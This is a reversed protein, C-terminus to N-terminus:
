TIFQLAKHYNQISNELQTVHNQTEEKLKLRDTMINECITLLANYNREKEPLSHYIKLCDNM